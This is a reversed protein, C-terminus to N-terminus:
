KDGWYLLSHVEAGDEFAEVEQVELLEVFKWTVTAGEHNLYSDEKAHGINTLKQRALDENDVEVIMVVRECLPREERADDVHSEMVILGSYWGM